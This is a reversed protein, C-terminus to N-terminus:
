AAPLVQRAWATFSEAPRYGKRREIEGLVRRTEGLIRRSGFRTAQVVVPPTVAMAEDVAGGRALSTGLLATYLTHNRPYTTADSAAVALRSAREAERLDDLVLAVRARHCALDAYSWFNLWTPEGDTHSDQDLARESTALARVAATRDGTKAYGFAERAALLSLLRPSADRGAARRAAGVLTVAERGDRGNLTNCAQLAM